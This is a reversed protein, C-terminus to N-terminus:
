DFFSLFQQLLASGRAGEGFTALAHPTTQCHKHQLNNYFRRPTSRAGRPLSQKGLAGGSPAGRTLFFAPSYSPPAVRASFFALAAVGSTKGKCKKLSTNACAFGQGFYAPGCKKACLARALGRGFSVRRRGRFAFHANLSAPNAKLIHM